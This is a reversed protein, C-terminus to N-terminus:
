CVLLKHIRALALLIRGTNGYIQLTTCDVFVRTTDANRQLNVLIKRRAEETLATWGIIMIKNEFCKCQLIM